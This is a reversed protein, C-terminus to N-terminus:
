ATSSLELPSVPSMSIRGVGIDAVSVGTWPTPLFVPVYRMVLDNGAWFYSYFTARMNPGLRLIRSVAAM